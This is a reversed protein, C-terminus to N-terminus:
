GAQKRTQSRSGSGERGDARHKGEDLGVDDVADLPQDGDREAKTREDHASQVRGRHHGTDVVHVGDDVEALETLEAQGIPQREGRRRVNRLAARRECHREFGAIM